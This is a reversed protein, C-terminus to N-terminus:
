GAAAPQVLIQRRPARSTTYSLHVWGRGPPRQYVIAQDVPLARSGRILGVLVFWADVIDKPIVDAAEGKMHQSKRSGGIATNVALSRFGSSVVLPGTLQRWPELVDLCLATMAYIQDQDPTNDLRQGTITMEALTFHPSLRM